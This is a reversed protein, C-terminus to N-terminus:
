LHSGLCLRCFNGSPTEEAWYGKGFPYTPHLGSSGSACLSHAFSSSPAQMSRDGEGRVAQIHFTDRGIPDQLVVRLTPSQLFGWPKRVWRKAKLFIFFIRKTINFAEQAVKVHYLSNQWVGQMARIWLSYSEDPVSIQFATVTVTCHRKQKLITKWYKIQLM